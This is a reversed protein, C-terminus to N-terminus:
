GSLRGILQGFRADSRLPDLDTDGEYVRREVLGEDVARGLATFAEDVRGLRVYACALNYWALGRTNRGPPIGLEFAREYSRAADANRNLNLQAYGLQGYVLSSLAGNAVALRLFREAEAWRQAAIRSTALGGLVGLDTSDLAFARLYATEAEPFRQLAALNRGYQAWAVVDQPHQEVWPGLLEVARDPQNGFLAAVIARAPSPQWPPQPVPELNSRWFAITQQLLRRAEDTDTFADFAHPMRAGFVLSWPAGTEIVRQWLAPLTGGMRPADSAAVVFQVPLDTRLSEPPVQGYYLAAARIGPAASDSMLYAAAGNVNASAAYIGLRDPDVGLSPGQQTLFRFLGAIGAQVREPDNDMSIGILGHAAVLRPWTAYIGWRKLADGPQDGIANVFVVAPRREGARLGPPLYLDLTLSHGGSELFPIDQRVTVERTAPVDYVVGWRTPALDSQPQQAVLPTAMLLAVCPRIM